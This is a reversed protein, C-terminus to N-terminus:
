TPRESDAVPAEAIEAARGEALLGAAELADLGARTADDDLDIWAAAAADALYVRVSAAVQREAIPATPDDLAGLELAIREATTFRKRFAWYTIARAPLAPATAPAVLSLTRDAGVRYDSIRATDFDAPADIADGTYDDLATAVVRDGSLILKM